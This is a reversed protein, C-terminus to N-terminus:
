HESPNVVSVCLLMQGSIDEGRLDRLGRLNPYKDNHVEHEERGEHHFRHGHKHHRRDHSFIAVRGEVNPSRSLVQIVM